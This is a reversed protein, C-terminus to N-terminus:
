RLSTAHLTEVDPAFFLLFDNFVCENKMGCQPPKGGSQSLSLLPVVQSAAVGRLLHHLPYGSACSTRPEGL